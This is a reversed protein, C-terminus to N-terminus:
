KLDKGLNACVAELPSTQTYTHQLIYSVWTRSSNGTLGLHSPPELFYGCTVLKLVASGLPCSTVGDNELWTSHPAMNAQWAEESISRAVKAVDRFHPVWELMRLNRYFWGTMEQAKEGGSTTAQQAERM